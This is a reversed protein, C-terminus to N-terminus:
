PLKPFATEVCVLMTSNEIKINMWELLLDALGVGLSECITIVGLFIECDLIRKVPREYDGYYLIWNEM